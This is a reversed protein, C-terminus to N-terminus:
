NIQKKHREVMRDIGYAVIAGCYLITIMGYIYDTNDLNNINM